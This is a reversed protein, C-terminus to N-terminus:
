VWGGASQSGGAKGGGRAEDADPGASVGRLDFASGRVHNPFRGRMGMSLGKVIVYAAMLMFAVPMALEIMLQKNNM